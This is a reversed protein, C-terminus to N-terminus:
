IGVHRLTDRGSIALMINGDVYAPKEVSVIHADHCKTYCM